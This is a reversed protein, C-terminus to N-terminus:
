SDTPPPLRFLIRRIRRVAQLWPLNLYRDLRTTNADATAKTQNLATEIQALKTELEALSSRGIQQTSNLSKKWLLREIRKRAAAWNQQDIWVSNGAKNQRWRFECTPEYSFVFNTKQCLFLLLFLDEFLPLQPDSGIGKLLSTRALFSNSTIFNDLAVLRGLDFPEFYMLEAPESPLNAPSGSALDSEWVRISGSYAVGRDLFGDLLQVLSNVHSPYILDDDDLIGFYDSSVAGLGDWLQTSRSGTYSSEVIELPIEQRFKNLVKSLEPVEKYQVVIAGVGEYTQGRISDLAREIYQVDRDGVRVILQASREGLKLARPHSLCTKQSSLKQHKQGLDALLRELTYNQAFLDYAKKSLELAKEPNNAIWEMYESIQATTRAPDDTSELYLVSDRFVDRIFCHEQCIAIAGSAAIEFIRSSPTAADCHEKRHLCLGAGAKNLVNLISEGDFPLPGRYSHKLQSWANQPGYIDLYPQTELKEFLERYRSGDWNIGAYVLRPEHIQPSRYRVHHTSTYWDAIFYDKPAIYLIDKLWLNIHQSSSLYADYSLVNKVFQEDHAFYAPPNVM